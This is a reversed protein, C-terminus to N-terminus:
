DAIFNCLGALSLISSSLPAAGKPALQSLSPEQFVLYHRQCHSLGKRSSNNSVQSAGVCSNWRCTWPNGFLERSGGKAFPLVAM